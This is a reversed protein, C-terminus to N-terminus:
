TDRRQWYQGAERRSPPRAPILRILAVDKTVDVHTHVVILRGIAIHHLWQPAVSPFCRKPMPAPLRIDEDDVMMESM